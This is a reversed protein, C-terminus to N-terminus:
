QLDKSGNLLDPRDDNDPLEVWYQNAQRDRNQDESQSNPVFGSGPIQAAAPGVSTSRFSHCHSSLGVLDCLCVSRRFRNVPCSRVASSGLRADRNPRRRVEVKRGAVTGACRSATKM